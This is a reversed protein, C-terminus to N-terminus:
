KRTNAPSNNGFQILYEPYCQSNDFITFITPNDLDNVCSDYMRRVKSHYSPRTLLKQGQQSWGCLVRALYMMKSDDVYKESYRATTSFYIGKGLVAGNATPVRIDFGESCISVINEAKTGHFLFKEKLEATGIDEEIHKRKLVYKEWLKRNQIRFVQVVHTGFAATKEFFAAVTSGETSDLRINVQLYNKNFPTLNTDWNRPVKAINQLCEMGVFNLLFCGDHEDYRAWAAKCYRCSDYNCTACVFQITWEDLMGPCACRPCIVLEQMKKVAKATAKREKMRFNDSLIDIVLSPLVPSLSDLPIVASCSTNPCSLHVQNSAMVLRVHDELCTQCIAHANKCHTTKASPSSTDCISCLVLAADQKQMKHKAKIRAWACNSDDKGKLSACQKKSNSTSNTEM